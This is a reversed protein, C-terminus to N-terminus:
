QVDWNYYVMNSISKSLTIHTSRHKQLNTTPMNVLIAASINMM